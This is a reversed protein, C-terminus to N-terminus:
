DHLIESKEPPAIQPVKHILLAELKKKEAEIMQDLTKLAATRQVPNLLQGNNWQFYPEKAQRQERKARKEEVHELKALATRIHYKVETLAFDDSINSLANQLLAKLNMRKKGAM